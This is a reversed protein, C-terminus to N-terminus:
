LKGATDRQRILGPRMKLGLATDTESNWNAVVSGPSCRVSISDSSTDISGSLRLAPYLDAQAVGIRIVEAELSAQASELELIQIEVENVSGKCKLRSVLLIRPILVAIDKVVAVHSQEVGPFRHFTEHIM